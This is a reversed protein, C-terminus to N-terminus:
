TFEEGYKRHDQQKTVFEESEYIQSNSQQSNSEFNRYVEQAQYM